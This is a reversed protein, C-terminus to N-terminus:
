SGVKYRGSALQLMMIYVLSSLRNLAMLIDPRGDQDGYFADMAVLELERCQTRIFNLQAMVRGQGPQPFLHAVGYFRRPHHSHERIEAATLGRFSLPVLPQERVEASMIRRCYELLEGLDRALEGLGQSDVEVIASILLAELSDLKGRFKIRPHNKPVLMTGRVHTLHEPKEAVKEGTALVTYGAEGTGGARGAVAQEARGAPRGGTEGSGTLVQIGRESLFQRAAPTLGAGEPLRFSTFESQKYQERLEAETIVRM